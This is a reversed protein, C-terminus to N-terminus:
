PKRALVEDFFPLGYMKEPFLPSTGEPWPSEWSKWFPLLGAKGLEVCVKESGLYIGNFGREGRGLLGRMRHYASYGMLTFRDLRGMKVGETLYFPIIGIGNWSCWLIGGPRLVRFAERILGKWKKILPLANYILVCDAEGDAFPLAESASCTFTVNPCNISEQIRQAVEIRDSRADIGIVRTFADAAAVSWNGTGCGVDIFLEGSLGFAAIRQEYYSIGIEWQSRSFDDEPAMEEIVAVAQLTRPSRDGPHHSLLRQLYPSRMSRQPM